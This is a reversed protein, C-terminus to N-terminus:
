MFIRCGPGVDFGFMYWAFLLVLLSVLYVISYPMCLSIVTGLGVKRDPDKNYTALLGMIVPVYYDVPSIINTCTDAIRYTAQTIAPSLGLMSFM